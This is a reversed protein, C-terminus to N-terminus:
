WVAVLPVNKFGQIGTGGSETFALTKAHFMRYHDLVAEADHEIKGMSLAVNGPAEEGIRSLQGAAWYEEFEPIMRGATQKVYFGPEDMADDLLTALVFTPSLNTVINVELSPILGWFGGDSEYYLDLVSKEFRDRHEKIVYQMDPKQRLSLFNTM